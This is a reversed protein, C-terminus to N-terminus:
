AAATDAAYVRERFPAVGLRRVTQLFSEDSSDRREIYVDLIRAITAAVREKAVSPGIVEGLAV